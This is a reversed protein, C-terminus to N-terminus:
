ARDAALRRPLEGLWHELRGVGAAFAGEVKLWGAADRWGPPQPSATVLLETEGDPHVLTLGGWNGLASVAALEAFPWERATRRGGPLVRVRRDTAHLEGTTAAHGRGAARVGPCTVAFREGAALSCRDGALEGRVFRDSWMRLEALVEAAARNVLGAPAAGAAPTTIPAAAAGDAVIRTM